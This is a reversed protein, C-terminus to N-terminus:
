ACGIGDTGGDVDGRGLSQFAVGVCAGLSDFVPGGSNGSNIAADIQVGLLESASHAYSTM